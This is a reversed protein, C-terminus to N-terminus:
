CRVRPEPFCFLAWGAPQVCQDFVGDGGSFLRLAPPERRCLCSNVGSLMVTWCAWIAVPPFTKISTVRETGRGDPPPIVVPSISGNIHGPRPPITRTRCHCPSMPWWFGTQFRFRLQKPLGPVGTGLNNVNQNTNIVSATGPFTFGYGIVRFTPLAFNWLGDVNQGPNAPCYFINRTAGSQLVTTVINVPVDWAWNGGTMPPLRSNNDNAYVQMALDMQKVNSMCQAQIAKIKARALAPLLMAALIAIIAIVVLLEILTFAKRMSNFLHM